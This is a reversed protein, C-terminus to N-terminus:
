RFAIFWYERGRDSDLLIHYKTWSIIGRIVRLPPSDHDFPKVVTWSILSSLSSLHDGRLLSADGQNGDPFSPNNGHALIILSCPQLPM